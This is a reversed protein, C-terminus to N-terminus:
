PAPLMWLERGHARDSASFYLGQDTGTLELPLSWSPGPAVDQVLRTGDASGDSTWLEMGHVADRARFWLRDRWVELGQPYSGFPGPAIDRVLLTGQSTGDTSWLEDGHAVDHAAFFVRGDLEVFRPRDPPAFLDTLVTLGPGLPETTADTGASVWPRYTGEPFAGGPDGTRHAIFYLSGGAVTLSRPDNVGSAATVAPGTGAETGDTSWIEISGNSQGLPFYVRGGLELFVLDEYSVDPAKLNSTPPALPHTGAPTGDSVWPRWAFDTAQREDDFFYLKGGIGTLKYAGVGTPLDLLKRTGAQTGDIGDTIWISAQLGNDSVMWFAAQSGFRTVEEPEGPAAAPVLALTGAATGDTRWLSIGNEATLVVVLAVSGLDVPISGLNSCYSVPVTLLRTTESGRVFRLEQGNGTCDQVLLGDRFPTLRQPQSSQGVPDQAIPRSGAPTGDSTWLSQTEATGDSMRVQFLLRGGAAGAELGAAWGYYHSWRPGGRTALFTGASSGDTIWLEGTEYENTIEFLVRGGAAVAQVLDYHRATRKLLRTGAGTGDTVWFGQGRRDSGFLAYRGGGLPELASAVNPCEGTCGALPATSRLDGRSTWLKSGNRQRAVFLLRDGSSQLSFIVASPDSFDTLRRLTEPAAGVSWLEAGLVGDNEQFYLRGAATKFANLDSYGFPDPPAFATLPRTGAPTGNSTWIELGGNQADQAIFFVRGPGATLLHRAKPVDRLRQVTHAGADAVWLSLTDDSDGALLFARRGAAAIERIRASGPGPVTEAVLGTGERTGDSTWPECGLEPTCAVFFLRGGFLSFISDPQVPPLRYTETVPFTGAPTGDTRWIQADLDPYGQIVRYFAISGTSGLLTAPGCPPCLVALAATGPSTGDSGWLVVRHEEDSRLFVTRNGVSAFDTFLQHASVTGPALDAALRAPGSNDAAAAPAALFGLVLALPFLPRFVSAYM